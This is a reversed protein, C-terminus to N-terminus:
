LNSTPRHTSHFYCRRYSLLIEFSLLNAKYYCSISFLIYCFYVLNILYFNKHLLFTMFVKMKLQPILILYSFTLVVIWPILVKKLPFFFPFEKLSFFYQLSIQIQVLSLNISSFISANDLLLPIHHMIIFSHIEKM